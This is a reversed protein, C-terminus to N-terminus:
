EGVKENDQTNPSLVNFVADICYLVILAGSVPIVLYVYGMLIGLSASLQNLQFAVAVLNSGGIIMVIIAFAAVCGQILLESTLKKSGTLKRTFIDLGLHMGEKYALASGLLGIWILLFRSLEETFSSPDGVVFRTLVQWIVDIVLLAMLATLLYRLAKETAGVVCSFVQM